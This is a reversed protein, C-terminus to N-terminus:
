LIFTFQTFYTMFYYDNRANFLWYKKKKKLFSIITYTYTISLGAHLQIKSYLWGDLRIEWKSPLLGDLMRIAFCINRDKLLIVFNRKSFMSIIFHQKWCRDFVNELLVWRCLAYFMQLGYYTFHTLGPMVRAYPREPYHEKSSVQRSFDGEVGTRISSSWPRLPKAALLEARSFLWICNMYDFFSIM